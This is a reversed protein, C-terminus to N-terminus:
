WMSGRQRAMMLSRMREMQSENLPYERKAQWMANTDQRMVESNRAVWIRQRQDSFEYTVTPIKMHRAVRYFVGLEQITGNPVIVVDPKSQRLYALAAQAMDRNRNLRLKYIDSDLDVDEIQLTYQTDYLSVEKVAEVLDPPLPMYPARATLFSVIDMAPGAQELVKRAYANQRRLDFM